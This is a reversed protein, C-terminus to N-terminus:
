HHFRGMRERHAANPAKHCDFCKLDQLKQVEIPSSPKSKNPMTYQETQWYDKNREDNLYPAQYALFWNKSIPITHCQDCGGPPPIAQWSTFMACGALLAFLFGSILFSQYKM